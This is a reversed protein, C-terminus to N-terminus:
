EEYEHFFMLGYHAATYGETFKYVTVEIKYVATSSPTVAVVPINDTESDSVIEVWEGDVDKYVKIDLDEVRWDGFATIGYEWGEYLMRTFSVGEETIIDAQMHVIEQGASDELYVVYVDFYEVIEKMSVSEDVAFTAAPAFILIALCYLLLKNFM